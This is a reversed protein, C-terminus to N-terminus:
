ENGLRRLKFKNPNSELESILEPSGWADHVLSFNRGNVSQGGENFAWLIFESVSGISQFDDKAIRRLLEDKNPGSSFGAALTQEHIPSKIWGTGLSVFRIESREAAFIEMAKTLAVKSITYASYHTPASNIGGGALTVVMPNSSTNTSPMLGRLFRIPGLTNVYFNEEWGDPDVLEFEGIPNLIGVCIVILDLVADNANIERLARDISESRSFDCAFIGVSNEDLARRSTGLVRWGFASLHHAVSAGIASDIGAILATLV